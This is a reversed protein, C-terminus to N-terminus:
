RLPGLDGPVQERTSSTYVDQQKYFVQVDNSGGIGRASHSWTGRGRLRGQRDDQLLVL